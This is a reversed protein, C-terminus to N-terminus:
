PTKRKFWHKMLFILLLFQMPYQVPTPFFVFVITKKQRRWSPLSCPDAPVLLPSTPFGVQLTVPVKEIKKSFKRNM